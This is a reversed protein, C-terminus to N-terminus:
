VSSSAMMTEGFVLIGKEEPQLVQMEPSDYLPKFDKDTTEERLVIKQNIKNVVLALGAYVSSCLTLPIIIIM